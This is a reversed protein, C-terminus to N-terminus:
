SALSTGTRVYAKVQGSDFLLFHSQIRGERQLEQCAERVVVLNEPIQWHFPFIEAALDFATLARNNLSLSLLIQRSLTNM